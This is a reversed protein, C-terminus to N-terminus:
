EDTSHFSHSCTSTTIRLSVSSFPFRLRFSRWLRGSTREWTPQFFRELVVSLGGRESWKMELVFLVTWSSNEVRSLLQALRRRSIDNLPKLPDVSNNIKRGQVTRNYRSKNVTRHASSILLQVTSVTSSHFLFFFGFFFLKILRLQDVLRLKQHELEVHM